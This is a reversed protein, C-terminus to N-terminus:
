EIVRELPCHSLLVTAGLAACVVEMFSRETQEDTVAAVHDAQNDTCVSLTILISM